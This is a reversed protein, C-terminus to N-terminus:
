CIQLVRAADDVWPLYLVKIPLLVAKIDNVAKVTALTKLVADDVITGNGYVARCTIGILVRWAGTRNEKRTDLSTRNRASISLPGPTVM